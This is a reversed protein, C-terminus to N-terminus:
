VDCLNGADAVLVGHLHEMDLFTLILLFKPHSAVGLIKM